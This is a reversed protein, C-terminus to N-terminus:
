REATRSATEGIGHVEFPHDDHHGACPVRSRRASHQTSPDAAVPEAFESPPSGQVRM